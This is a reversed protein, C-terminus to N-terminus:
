APSADGFDPMGLAVSVSAGRAPERSPGRDAGCPSHGMRRKETLAEDLCERAAGACSGCGTTAGLRERLSGMCAVEGDLVSRRIDRDTLSKCLCIYMGLGTSKLVISAPIRTIRLESKM